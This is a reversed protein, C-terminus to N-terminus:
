TTKYYKLNLFYDLPVILIKDEILCKHLNLYKSSVVNSCNKPPAGVEIDSKEDMQRDTACWIEPITCWIIMIKPVCTYFAPVDLHKKKWKKLIKIKQVTLHTFPCFMHALHFIVNVDHVVDWSCYLMHDHNKTHKHLIYYRRANKENKLIKFKWTTLLTLPCFTAWFSLFTQKNHKLDWSGYMVHDENITCM